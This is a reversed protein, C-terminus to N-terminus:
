AQSTVITAVETQTPLAEIPPTAGVVTPAVLALSLGTREVTPLLIVETAPQEAVESPVGEAEADAQGVSSAPAM